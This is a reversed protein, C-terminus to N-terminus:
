LVFENYPEIEPYLQKMYDKQKNNPYLCLTKGGKAPM